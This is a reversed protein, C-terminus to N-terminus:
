GCSSSCPLPAPPPLRPPSTVGPTDESSKDPVGGRGGRCLHEGHRSCVCPPRAAAAGGGGAGGGQEEAEAQQQQQQEQM